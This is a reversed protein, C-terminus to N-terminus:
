SAVLEPPTQYWSRGEHKPRHNQAQIANAQNWVFNRLHIYPRPVFIYKTSWMYCLPDAYVSNSWDLHSDYVSAIYTALAKCSSIIPGVTVHHRTGADLGVLVLSEGRVLMGDGDWRLRGYGNGFGSGREVPTLRSCESTHSRHVEKQASCIGEGSMRASSWLNKTM